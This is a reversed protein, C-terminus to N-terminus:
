GFAVDLSVGALAVVFFLAAVLFVQVCWPLGTLADALKALADV